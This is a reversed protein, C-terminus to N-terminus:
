LKCNCCLDSSVCTHLAYLGSCMPRPSYIASTVIVGRINARYTVALGIVGPSVELCHASNIASSIDLNLPVGCICAEILVAGLFLFCQDNDVHFDKVRSNDYCQLIKGKKWSQELAGFLTLFPSYKQRCHKEFNWVKSLVRALPPDIAGGRGWPALLWDLNKQGSTYGQQLTDFSTSSFLFLPYKREFNWEFNSTKTLVGGLWPALHM